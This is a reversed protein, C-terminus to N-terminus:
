GQAPIGAPRYRRNGVRFLSPGKEAQDADRAAMTFETVARPDPPIDKLFAADRGADAPPAPFTAPGRGPKVRAADMRLKELGQDVTAQMLNLSEVLDETQVLLVSGVPCGPGSAALVKVKACAEGPDLTATLALVDGEALPIEANGPTVGTLAASVLFVRPGQDTFLAPMAWDAVPTSEGAAQDTKAQRMQRRIEDALARKVAPTMAAHPAEATLASAAAVSDEQVFPATTSDGQALFASQLTTALTYDTLWSAPSAYSTDPQFYALYHEYWASEQWPWLYPFSHQFPSAAWAYFGPRHYHSRMYFHYEVEQYTWPRYFRPTAIGARIYTRQVFSQNQSEFPRQIYGDRGHGVFLRGDPREWEFHRVGAPSHWIVAGNAAHVELVKGSPDRHIASGDKFATM